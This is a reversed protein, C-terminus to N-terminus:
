TRASSNEYKEEDKREWYRLDFNSAATQLEALTAPRAAYVLGDKIRPALGKYYRYYLARECFETIPAYENFVGNYKTIHHHDHMRLNELKNAATNAPNPEGFTAKLAQEFADWRLAYEPLEHEELWLNPEYWRQATGKLWSVAYNIKIEDNEFDDPHDRFLLKCQSLFARLKSPDSGDYPDPNRTKVRTPPAPEDYRDHALRRIAAPPAQLQAQFQRIMVEVMATMAAQLQPDIPPLNPAPEPTFIPAIPTRDRDEQHPHTDRTQEQSMISPEPLTPSTSPFPVATKAKSRTLRTSHM